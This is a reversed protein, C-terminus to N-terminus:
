PYFLNNGYIALAQDSCCASTQTDCLGSSLHDIVKFSSLTRYFAFIRNQTPVPERDVQVWCELEPTPCIKEWLPDPPLYTLSQPCCICMTALEKSKNQNQGV